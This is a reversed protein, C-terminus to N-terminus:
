LVCKASDIICYYVYLTVNLIIAVNQRLLLCRCRPLRRAMLDDADPTVQSRASPANVQMDARVIRSRHSIDEAYPSREIRQMLSMDLDLRVKFLAYELSLKVAASM